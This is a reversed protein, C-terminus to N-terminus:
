DAPPLKRRRNDDRDNLFRVVQWILFPLSLIGFTGLICLDGGTGSGTLFPAGFFMLMISAVVTGGVITKWLPPQRSGVM